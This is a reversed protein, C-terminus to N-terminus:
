LTNYIRDGADGLGPLIYGKANLGEDISATVIKLKPFETNLKEIGQPSSILSMFVINQELIGKDTFNKTCDVSSNGTALMPDVIILHVKEKNEIIEKKKDYYWVPELTKEDRFMGIHHINAHPAIEHAIESFILGARLIPAIILQSSKDYVQCVTKKLPTEIEKEVLPIDKLAEFLLFYTIRKLANKFKECDSNKDRLVSLNHKIVPHNVVIVNKTKVELDIEKTILIRTPCFKSVNTQKKM